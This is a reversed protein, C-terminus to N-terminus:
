VTLHIGFRGRAPQFALCPICDNPGTTRRHRGATVKSVCNVRARRTGSTWFATTPRHVILREVIAAEGHHVFGYAPRQGGIVRELLLILFSKETDPFGSHFFCAAARSASISFRPINNSTMSQDSSRAFGDKAAERGGPKARHHVIDGRMM